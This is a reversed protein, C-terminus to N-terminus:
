RQEDKRVLRPAIAAVAEQATKYTGSTVEATADDFVKTLDSAKAAVGAAGLGMSTLDVKWKGDVRKLRLPDKENPRDKRVATAADGDVHYEAEGAQAALDAGAAVTKSLINGAGFKNDCADRLRKLAPMVRGVAVAAKLNEDPGVSVMRIAADDGAQLAKAFAVAVAKPSTLEPDPDPTALAASAVMLIAVLGMANHTASCHM